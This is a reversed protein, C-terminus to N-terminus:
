SCLLVSIALRCRAASVPCPLLFRVESHVPRDRARPPVVSRVQPVRLHGRVHRLRLAARPEPRAQDLPSTSPLAVAPPPGVGVEEDRRPKHLTTYHRRLGNATNMSPNAPPSPPRPLTWCHTSIPHASLPPSLPFPASRPIVARYVPKSPPNYLSLDASHPPHSPPAIKLSTSVPTSPRARLIDLQLPAGRRRSSAQRHAENPNHQVHVFRSRTCVLRGPVFACRPDTQSVHLVAGSSSTGHMRLCCPRRFDNMKM